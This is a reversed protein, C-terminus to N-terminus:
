SGALEAVLQATETPTTGVAIGKAELADKKAQATGSSRRSSAWWCRSLSNASAASHDCGIAPAIACAAGDRTGTESRAATPARSASSADTSASTICRARRPRSSPGRCATM